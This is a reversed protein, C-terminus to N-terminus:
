ARAVAARPQRVQQPTAAHHRPKVPWRMQAQQQQQQAQQAQQQTQRRM